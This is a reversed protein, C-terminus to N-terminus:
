FAFLALLGLAGVLGLEGALMTFIFDTHKQPLFSVKSQTGQVFGNGWVCGSGLAIKSQMIQYGAVLTVRKADLFTMVRKRQYEHLQQWVLPLALLGSGLVAAFKWWRVGALFLLTAGGGALMVATGLDPQKLVLTAPAVILVVPMVLSIPRAVDE